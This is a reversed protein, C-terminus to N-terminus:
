RARAPADGGARAVERVVRSHPARGEGVIWQKDVLFHM